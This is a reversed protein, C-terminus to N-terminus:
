VLEMQKLFMIKFDEYISLYEKIIEGLQEYNIFTVILATELNNLLKYARTINGGKFPFFINDKEINITLIPVGGKVQIGVHFIFSEIFEKFYYTGDIYKFSYNYIGLISQVEKKDIKSVRSDWNNYKSYLNHYRSIFNISEYISSELSNLFDNNM